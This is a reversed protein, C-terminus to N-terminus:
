TIPKAFWITRKTWNGPGRRVGSCVLIALRPAGSNAYYAPVTRTARVSMTKTVHYCAVRGGAGALVLISGRHLRALLRNGLALGASKPYTHATLRTVGYASAAGIHSKKDWAFQWKGKATLPPALPVGNRDQGRALVKTTKVVGPITLTRPAFSAAAQAPEARCPAPV